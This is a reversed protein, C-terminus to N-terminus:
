RGREAFYNVVKNVEKSQINGTWEIEHKGDIFIKVNPLNMVPYSIKNVVFPTENLKEADIKLVVAKDKFDQAFKDIKPILSRCPMCWDAWFDVIVIPKHKIVKVADKVNVDVPIGMKFGRIVKPPLKVKKKKPKVVATM